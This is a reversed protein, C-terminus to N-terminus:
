GGNPKWRTLTRNRETGLQSLANAVRAGAGDLCHQYVMAM